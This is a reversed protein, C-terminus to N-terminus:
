MKMKDSRSGCKPLGHKNQYSTVKVIIINVIKSGISMKYHLHVTSLCSTSTKCRMYIANTDTPFLWRSFTIEGFLQDGIDGTKEERYVQTTALLNMSKSAM